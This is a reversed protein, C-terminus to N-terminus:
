DQKELAELENKLKKSQRLSSFLLATLLILAVGYAPWIYEGYGNMSLFDMM